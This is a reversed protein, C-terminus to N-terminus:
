FAEGISLHYEWGSEKREGIVLRNPKFGFDLRLPGLPSDYRIGFGSSGRLRGLNLDAVRRFVNGGDLFTVVALSRGFMRTLAHRLEANVVVVANGGVSLGTTPNIVTCELCDPDFVGLRDLPFGRVTTGGGAFFRQSVPLARVVETTPAGFADVSEVDRSFAGALGVQGRLALVTRTTGRLPRFNSAQMFAKVYGVESGIARAALEGDASLFTGRTPTLPSDRGDWSWGTAVLSLRVQPFLRDILPRDEDPIREDFLRTFDLSYRGSISARVGIRRLFEANAVQRLYNYTPRASQESTLSVLLDTDSRFAHQERYTATVRYETFQFEQVTQSLNERDSRRLGVRTFLTVARNRGGLHRRGIEFFGRPAFEVRDELATGDLSRRSRSGGELGLGFGITTAKAETVSVIVHGDTEGGLREAVEVTFSRFVGMDALRQRATNLASLGLPQGPELRMEELIQEESVRQNGLVTVRGILIQPGENITLRLEVSSSDVFHPAVAVAVGLFGRDRYFARLAEQDLVADLEVYPGGVRSRMQQRLAAEDMQHPGEFSFTLAAVQGRPGEVIAPHLVVWAETATGREPVRELEPVAHVLYFGRRRYEDVVARLGADLRQEDFVDGPSIGLLEHLLASPVQLGDPVDLRDVFFRAGRDITFQVVLTQGDPSLQRAFPASATAYGQSKLAREINARADELLDQDASRQREIPILDDASGPLSGAPEIRLEVRPGAQVVLALAVGDAAPAADVTVQAEYYGRARLDDEIETTRTEIQRRRFPRGPQAETRRLVEADTLPSANRVDTAHIIAVPGARVKVLLTAVDDGPTVTTSATVEPTMYGEDNLQRTVFDEVVETRVTTPRNGVFRQRLDSTLSGAVVGGDEAVVEVRDIPYRPVLRFTVVVGSGARAVIPRIDEYRGVAFLQDMSARVADRSLPEGVRVDVLDALSAQNTVPGVLGEVEFRVESVTLGFFAEAADQSADAPVAALLAVLAVAAARM